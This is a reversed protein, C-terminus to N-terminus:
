YGNILCAKKQTNNKKQNQSHTLSHSVMIEMKLHSKERGGHCDTKIVKKEM